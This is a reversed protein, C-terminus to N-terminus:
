EEDLLLDSNTNRADLLFSLKLDDPILQYLFMGALVNVVSQLINWPVLVISATIAAEISLGYLFQLLPINTLFMGISCFVAASIAYLIVRRAYSIDRNRILLWVMLIGLIKYFEAFVKFTAGVINRYGIVIGMFGVGLFAFVPGFFLFLLVLPIGTWDLTFNIGPIPIDTIGIIPYVELAFVMALFIALLAITKSDYTKPIGLKTGM